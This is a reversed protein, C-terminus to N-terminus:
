RRSAHSVVVEVRAQGFPAVRAASGDIDGGGQLDHIEDAGFVRTDGGRHGLSADLDRLAMSKM